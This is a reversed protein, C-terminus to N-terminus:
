KHLKRFISKIINFLSPINNFDDTKAFLRTDKVHDKYPKVPEDTAVREMTIIRDSKSKVCFGLSSYYQLQNDVDPDNCLIVVYEKDPKIGM